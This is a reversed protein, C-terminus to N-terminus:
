KVRKGRLRRKLRVDSAKGKRVYVGREFDGSINRKRRIAGDARLSDMITCANGDDVNFMSKVQKSTILAGKPVDLIWLRVKNILTDRKVRIKPKVPKITGELGPFGKPVDGSLGDFLEVPEKSEAPAEITAPGRCIAPKIKKVPTMVQEADSAEARQLLEKVQSHKGNTSGLSDLIKGFDSLSLDYNDTNFDTSTETLSRAVCARVSNSISKLERDLRLQFAVIVLAKKALPTDALRNLELVFDLSSKGM